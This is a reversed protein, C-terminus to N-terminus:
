PLAPGIYSPQLGGWDIVIREVMQGPDVAQLRLTHRRRNTDLPLRLIFEHGNKLVQTKWSLSYETFRNELTIINGGDVDLAIRNSRSEYIPFFPLAHIHITISDSPIAGLDYTAAASQNLATPQGLQLVDWDYGLGHVITAGDIHTPRTLDLVKCRDLRIPNKPASLDVAKTPMDASTHLTPMQHYHATYGPPVTMMGQWKGDLQTNYTNCLAQISDNAARCQDAAWNAEAQRGAAHLEHNLQAMLFKRNMQEAGMVMFGVLEFFAPRSQVPLAQMIRKATHAIAAYDALRQQADHYNTFSFETDRLRSRDPSDWEWEWGMYEPKRIWALRYYEDLIHQFDAKYRKGFMEALANAQLTNIHDYNYAEVDRALDFFTQIGLEMPKIDGVNLLWYRDAGTAFAKTLEEYMLAPATTCLWLYDHPAGLYSLHYYLGSRGTRQQEDPNSVRKMYGYNDDPWVITVDDPLRLGAQYVDLTEKYPVFIQPVNDAPRQTFLELLHRQDRIVDTLVAVREQPTTQGRMGEDHVGRMAITYINDLQHAEAVRAAFKGLITSRNTRYNWEGDRASDWEAKSANNFLMPECHSTTIIIGMDDAVTKSEPHTYFAGTCSHMAPALMNGGLRLILECVREYTKPGIDGLTREFNTAAWPKLGWDEDNIFIGRYKVSPATREVRGWTWTVRDQQNVPVDAWWYWPSVGIRRSIDYIGYVTGRRDSGAVVLTHDSLPCIIYSEWEGSIRSVDIQGARVMQDIAQSHGITGVIIHRSEDTTLPRGAVRSIDQGLNAAAIHVAKWDASDVDITPMTTDVISFNHDRSKAPATATLMILTITLLIATPRHM